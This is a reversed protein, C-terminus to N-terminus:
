NKVEGENSSMSSPSWVGNEYSSCVKSSALFLGMTTNCEEPEVPMGFWDGHGMPGKGDQIVLAAQGSRSSPRLTVKGHPIEGSPTSEIMYERIKM